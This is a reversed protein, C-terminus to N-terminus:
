DPVNHCEKGKAVIVTYKILTVSNIQQTFSGLETAQLTRGISHVSDARNIAISLGIM